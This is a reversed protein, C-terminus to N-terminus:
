PRRGESAEWMDKPSKSLLFRSSPAVISSVRNCRYTIYVPHDSRLRSPRTRDSDVARRSSWHHLSRRGPAVHALFRCSSVPFLTRRPWELTPQTQVRKPFASQPHRSRTTPPNPRELGALPVSSNGSIRIPGILCKRAAMSAGFRIMTWRMGMRPALATGVLCFGDTGSGKIVAAGHIRRGLGPGM